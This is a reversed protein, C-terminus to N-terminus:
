VLVGTYLPPMFRPWQGSNALFTDLTEYFLTTVRTSPDKIIIKNCIEAWDWPSMIKFITQRRQPFYHRRKLSVIALAWNKPCGQM